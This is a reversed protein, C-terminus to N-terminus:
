KFFYKSKNNNNSSKEQFSYPFSIIQMLRQTWIDKRLISAILYTSSLLIGLCFFVQPIWLSRHLKISCSCYSCPLSSPVTITRSHGQTHVAFHVGAGLAWASPHSDEPTVRWSPQWHNRNGSPHAPFTLCLQRCPWPSSLSPLAERAVEACSAPSDEWGPLSGGLAPLSFQHATRDAAPSKSQFGLWCRWLASCVAQKGGSAGAPFSGMIEGVSVMKTVKSGLSQETEGPAVAAAALTGAGGGFDYWFSLVDCHM